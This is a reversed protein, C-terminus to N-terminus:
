FIYSCIKVFYDFFYFLFYFKKMLDMDPCMVLLIGFTLSNLFIQAAAYKAAADTATM